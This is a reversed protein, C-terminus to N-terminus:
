LKLKELFSYMLKHCMSLNDSQTHTHTHTHTHAHTHTHLYAWYKTEIEQWAFVTIFALFISLNTTEYFNTLFYESKFFHNSKKVSKM